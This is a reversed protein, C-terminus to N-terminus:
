LNTMWDLAREWEQRDQRTTRIFDADPPMRGLVIRAQKLTGRADEPRNLQRYCRAIQVLAELAEPESQYRNSATSYAEVAESYREMDYLVHARAFYCNRLITKEFESLEEQEEKQNLRAILQAYAPAAAELHQTKQAALEDRLTELSATALRREPWRASQRHADAALYHAYTSHPGNGYREEAQQLKHLTDIATEFLAYSSELSELGVARDEPRTSNVIQTRSEAERLTAQRHLLEGLAFMSDRWEVSSTQLEGQELNQELWTRAADLEGREGHVQAALLRARYSDPHRPNFQVCENLPVLAADLNNLALYAEGLALLARPNSRRDSHKRHLELMEVAREYDQGEFFSSASRWLDDPYVRSARRLQSLREYAKGAQRLHQRAEDRMANSEAARSPGARAILDDAWARHAAAELEVPSAPPFPPWPPTALAIAHEFDKGQLYADYAAIVRSRLQALPVWPNHYTEPDDAELLTRQYSAVADDHRGLQRQIEAEELSAAFAEPTQIDLRRLGSLIAEAESDDGARRAALGTVLRAARALPNSVLDDQSLGGLANIAAAYKEQAQQRSADTAAPDAALRDGEALLLRGHMLAVGDALKPDTVADLAARSGAVDGLALRIQSQELLATQQAAPPLDPESLLQQNLELSTEWQPEPLMQHARCSLALLEARHRTDAQLAEPLVKLCDAIRGGYFLSTALLYLGDAEHGEPFGQYRAEELYRAAIMHLRQRELPSWQERLDDVLAAGLVYLPGGQEEFPLSHSARLDAAIERAKEFEGEDLLSLADELTPPAEVHEEKTLTLTLASAFGVVAMGAGVIALLTRKNRLLGKLGKAPAADEANNSKDTHQAM